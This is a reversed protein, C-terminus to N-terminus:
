IINATTYIKKKLCFVAYSIRMLSQLESTHEESRIDRDDGLRHGEGQQQGKEAVVHAEAAVITQGVELIDEAERDLCGAGADPKVHDRHRHETAAEQQAAPDGAVLEAAHQFGHAVGFAPHSEEAISRFLTADPFLTHTRTSIPPRRIM